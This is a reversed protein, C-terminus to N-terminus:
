GRFCSMAFRRLGQAIVVVHKDSQRLLKLVAVATGVHYLDSIEPEDKNEDRQTVLGIIKSQTLTENLLQISAPRQVNLPSITRPFVVFSRVPLISLTTPIPPTEEMAGFQGERSTAAPDEGKAQLANLTEQNM